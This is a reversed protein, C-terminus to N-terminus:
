KDMDGSRFCHAATLVWRKNVVSGGCHVVAHQLPIGLFTKTPIKGQLLVLWPWDGKEIAEGGIMRNERKLNSLQPLTDIYFLYTGHIHLLNM